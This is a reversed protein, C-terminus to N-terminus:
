NRPDRIKDILREIKEKDEAGLQTKKSALQGFQRSLQLYEAHDLDGQRGLARTWIWDSTCRMQYAFAFSSNAKDNHGAHMQDRGTALAQHSLKKIKGCEAEANKM